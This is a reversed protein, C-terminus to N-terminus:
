ILKFINVLDVPKEQNQHCKLLDQVLINVQVIMLLHKIMMMTM